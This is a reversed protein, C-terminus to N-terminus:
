SRSMSPSTPINNSTADSENLKLRAVENQFLASAFLRPDALVVSPRRECRRVLPELTRGLVEGGNLALTSFCAQLAASVDDTHADKQYAQATVTNLIYEADVQIYNFEGKVVVRNMLYEQQASPFAFQTSNPNLNIFMEHKGDDHKVIAFTYSGPPLKVLEYAGRKLLERSIAPEVNASADPICYHYDAENFYTHSSGLYQMFTNKQEDDLCANFSGSNNTVLLFRHNEDVFIEGAASVVERVDYSRNNSSSISQEAKVQLENKADNMMEIQHYNGVLSGHGGKKALNARLEFLDLRANGAKNLVNYSGIVFNYRGIPLLEPLPMPEPLRQRLLVPLKEVDFPLNPLTTFLREVEEVRALLPLQKFLWDPLLSALRPQPMADIITTLLDFRAKQPIM